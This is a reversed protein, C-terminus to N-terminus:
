GDSTLPRHERKWRFMGGKLVLVMSFGRRELRKAAAISKLDSQCIVVVPRDKLPEMEAWNDTISQDLAAPALNIAGALHGQSFDGEPRLDILTVEEGAELRRALDAPMEYRVPGRIKRSLIPLAMLLLVLALPLLLYPELEIM